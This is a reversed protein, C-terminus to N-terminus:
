VDLPPMPYNIFSEVEARSQDLTTRLFPRAVMKSTGLELFLGYKLPTGFFGEVTQPNVNSVKNTINKVLNSDDEHPFKDGPKSPGHVKTQHRTVNRKAQAELFYVAKTVRKKLHRRMNAQIKEGNWKFTVGANGTGGARSVKGIAM